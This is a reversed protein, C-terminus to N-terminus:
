RSQSRDPHMFFEYKPLRLTESEHAFPSLGREIRMRAHAAATRSIERMLPDRTGFRNFGGKLIWEVQDPKLTPVLLPYTVPPGDKYLPDTESWETMTQGSANVLPGLFGWGKYYPSDEKGTKPNYRRGAEIDKGFDQLRFQEGTSVRPSPAALSTLSQAM